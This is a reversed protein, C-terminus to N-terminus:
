HVAELTRTDADLWTHFWDAALEQVLDLTGPEEFLHSAGPVITLEHICGLHGAAKQNMIIVPADYEGVILLTPARVNELQQRAMDPRGGRCVVAQVLPANEAAAILAAAAGTSAGFLGLNLHGTYPRQRLWRIAGGLRRSLLAIDFRFELSVEDLRSEEVTLLDFLLTAFGYQNLYRAVAQNRPSYRSSGSGHAFLIISKAKAPLALEGELVADGVNLSVTGTDINAGAM